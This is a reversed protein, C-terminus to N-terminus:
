DISMACRIQPRVFFEAIEDAIETRSLPVDVTTAMACRLNTPLVEGRKLMLDNFFLPAFEPHPQYTLARDDYRLMANACFSSSGIVEAEPPLEVVQDQHWALLTQTRGLDHRHYQVAGVSWGEGYKEVRGGLAQAIIQHGFCIGVMPLRKAYIERVLDELPAIWSHPEYVGFRSGTILWGDAVTANEPFCGDVVAYTVFEVDKGALLEVFFTDYDGHKEVLGDPAHGTQLIGIKM